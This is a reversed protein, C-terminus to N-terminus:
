RCVRSCPEPAAKRSRHVCSTGIKDHTLVVECFQQCVQSEKGLYAPLQKADELANAVLGVATQATGQLGEKKLYDIAAEIKSVVNGRGGEFHKVNDGHLGKSSNVKSSVFKNGSDM